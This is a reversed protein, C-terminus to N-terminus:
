AEHRQPTHGAVRHCSIRIVGVLLRKDGHESEIHGRAAHQLLLQQAEGPPRRVTKLSGMKSAGKLV